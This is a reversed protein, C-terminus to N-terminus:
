VILQGNQGILIVTLDKLLTGPIVGMMQGSYVRLLHVPMGYKERVIM